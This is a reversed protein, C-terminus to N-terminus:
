FLYSLSIRKIIDFDSLEVKDYILIISLCVEFRDRKLLVLSDFSLALAYVM